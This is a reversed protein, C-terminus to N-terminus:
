FRVTKECEGHSKRYSCKEHVEFFFTKLCHKGKKRLERNMDIYSRFWAKKNVKINKHM